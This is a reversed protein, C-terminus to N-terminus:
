AAVEALYLEAAERKTYGYYRKCISSGGLTWIRWAGESTREMERMVETLTPTEM